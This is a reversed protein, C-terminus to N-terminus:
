AICSTESAQTIRASTQYKRIFRGGLTASAAVSCFELLLSFKAVYKGLSSSCQQVITLISFLYHRGQDEDAHISREEDAHLCDQHLKCLRVTLAIFNCIISAAFSSVLTLSLLVAETATFPLSTCPNDHLQRSESLFSAICAATAFALAKWSWGGLGNMTSHRHLATAHHSKFGIMSGNQM